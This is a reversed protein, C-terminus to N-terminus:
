NGGPIIRILRIRSPDIPRGRFLWQPFGNVINTFPSFYKPNEIPNISLIYAGENFKSSTDTWLSQKYIKTNFLKPDDINKVYKWKTVYGSIRPDLGKELIAKAGWETTIHVFTEDSLQNYTRFNRTTSQSLYGSSSAGGPNVTLLFISAV